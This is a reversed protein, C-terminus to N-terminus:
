FTVRAGLQVTRPADATLIQGFTRRTLDTDPGGLIKRNLANFADIRLQVQARSWLPFKKSASLDLMWSGPTRLSNKGVTGPRITQGSATSTPVLAFAAPNLYQTPDGTHLYPDAGTVDPRSFDRTSSQTINIPRGSGARVIGSIQWAGLIRSMLSGSEGTRGYPLEYIAGSTFVHRRDLDTPGYDAAPNDEDQVRKDNGPWFDGQALALTKSWTYSAHVTLGRWARARISSQWGHYNSYDSADRYTFDLAEQVPRLGTLRDPLNRGHVMTINWGRSGVYATQVTMTSTVQRQLDLTWQMSNPNPNSSDFVQYGRPFNQGSVTQRVDENTRPYTLGLALADARSFRFRFPLEPSEYVLGSLARLNQPAVAMGLGGRVVTRGGGPTWAVGLRPLINNFDGDYISDPSRFVAPVQTAAATSLPNFLRDNQERFVSYYEYRVGLNLVLNDRVRFDDQVFFGVEWTSGAYQPQGFTFQVRNPSNALFAAADGYRFVPVEEDLRGPARRVFLGGFKIAHRGIPLSVVNELSYSHGRLRLSAGDVAFAGQVEIAPLGQLFIGDARRTQNVNAGFRTESTWTRGAHLYSVNATDTRGSYTRQNELVPRPQVQEPRSRTYRVTLRDAVNLAHDGRIVVHDDSGKQAVTGRWLATTDGPAYADTPDAWLALVPAYAPVAAIANAKFAPTPVPQVMVTRNNLRYGEYAAFFFTRNRVIPGGLSGGFQNFRVPPKPQSPATLFPRANLSDHQWNEFLSGQLRNTGSKTVVNVNGSFTRGVEASMVGKSVAVEEIAEQSLVKIINFGQFMSLSPTETDGSADTGDVTITIGGPALGNIQFLGDKDPQVGSQLSLLQSFDRRAKPLENVDVATLRGVDMASADQLLPVAARVTVEDSVSGIDLSVVYRSEQGATLEVGTRIQPTFGDCTVRITYRGVPLFAATFEGASNSVNTTTLRTEEHTLEITAGPLVAGSSDRVSGHLTATTRQAAASGLFVLVCAIVHLGTVAHKVM